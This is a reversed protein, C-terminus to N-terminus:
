GKRVPSKPAVAASAHEAPSRSAGSESNGAGGALFKDARLLSRRLSPNRDTWESAGGAEAASELTARMGAMKSDVDDLFHLAIAERTQPLSPSGFEHSGHHSLILHEVLVALAPPFEPITKIKDRVLAAGIMIHGLLRGQTSYDIGRGYRLEDIKGVDHLVVGALLLDADLEPYHAAVARSLGILSVMHELLGGLYAHHMTMAAPARKLRPMIAPDEVVSSLLQKLWPNSMAGIAVRLDAYLKEIDYKTHPLFDALEYDREAVPVIQELTVQKQGNFVTVRGRIQIVDDREFKSAIGAFNDWLIASVTGTRDALDLELWSKGTRASTRIEKDRVLFLSNVVQGEQFGSVFQSKM